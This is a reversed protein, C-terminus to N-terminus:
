NIIFLVCIKNFFDKIFICSSILYFIAWILDFWEMEQTKVLYDLMSVTTTLKVCLLYLRPVGHHCAVWFRVLDKLDTDNVKNLMQILIIQSESIYVYWFLYNEANFNLKPIKFIRVGPKVNNRVAIIRKLGM